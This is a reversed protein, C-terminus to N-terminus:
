WVKVRTTRSRPNRAFPGLAAVIHKASTELFVRTNRPATEYGLLWRAAYDSVTARSPLSGTIAHARTVTEWNRAEERTAFTASYRAGDITVRARFTGSSLCGTSM